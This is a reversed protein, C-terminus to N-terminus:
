FYGLNYGKSILTNGLLSILYNVMTTCLKLCGPRFIISGKLALNVMAGMHFPRKSTLIARDRTRVIKLKKSITKLDLVM